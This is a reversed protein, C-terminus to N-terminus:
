VNHYNIVDKFSKNVSNKIIKKNLNCLVKGPGVEIFSNLNNKNMNLIIREWQVSNELQKILNNKIRNTDTIPLPEFNQYIPIQSYQFKINKIKNKLKERAFRMLPSHFAGSVNLKVSKKIGIEKAKKIANNIGKISGSIVVQTSSNYNAPVVIEDQTCLENIQEKSAGLIAAMSGPRINGAKHMEESRIKIIELADEYSIIKASVLASYEGLSHGAVACPIIGEAKLITDKIISNIFIAPQTFKTINLEEKTGNFCIDRIDYKLINNAIEFLINSPKYYNSINKSLGPYQSGQGPFLFVNKKNM